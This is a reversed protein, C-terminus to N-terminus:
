LLRLLCLQAAFCKVLRWGGAFDFKCDDPDASGKQLGFDGLLPCALGQGDFTEVFVQFTQLGRNRFSIMDRREATSKGVCFERKMTLRHFLNLQKVNFEGSFSDLTLLLGFGCLIDM